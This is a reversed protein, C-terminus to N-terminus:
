PIAAAVAHARKSAEPPPVRLRAPHLDACCSSQIAAFPAPYSMDRGVNAPLGSAHTFTPPDSPDTTYDNIRPVGAGRAALAIFAIATVMAVVGGPRVGRGRVAQVLSVIGVVLAILGGLAFLVFGVLSPVIGIWALVPGVVFAVAAILGLRAGM